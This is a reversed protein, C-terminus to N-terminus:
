FMRTPGDTSGRWAKKLRQRRRAPETNVETISTGLLRLVPTIAPAPSTTKHYDRLLEKANGLEKQKLWKDHEAGYGKWRVLYEVVTKGRLIRERRDMLRELEYLRLTPTDGEVYVAPPQDPVPRQYPNNKLNEAPKLHAISFM